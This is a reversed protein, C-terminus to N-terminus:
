TLLLKEWKIMPIFKTIQSLFTNVLRLWIHHCNRTTPFFYCHDSGNLFRRNIYYYIWFLTKVIVSEENQQITNNDLININMIRQHYFHHVINISSITMMMWIYTMLQMSLFFQHSMQKKKDISNNKEMTMM